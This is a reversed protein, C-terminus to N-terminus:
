EYNKGRKKISLLSIGIAGAFDGLLAKEITLDSVLSKFARKQVTHRIPNLLKEGANSIGGGIVVKSPHFINVYSSVGLGIYHGIKEWLFKAFSDGKDALESWEQPSLSRRHPDLLEGLRKIGHISVYQELCGNSGCNCPFGNVDICFHGLEAGGGNAGVMLEGHLVVGGGVGTGLTLLVIGNTNKGSGLVYEAYAASNADNELGTEIKYENEILFKLPVSNWDQLNPVFISYERNLDLTGPVAIGIKDVKFNSLLTNLISFFQNLTPPQFPIKGQTIISDILEDWLVFKISSGGVDIGLIKM